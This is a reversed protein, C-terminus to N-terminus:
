ASRRHPLLSTTWTEGVTGACRTGSAGGRARSASWSRGCGSSLARASTVEGPSGCGTALCCPRRRAPPLLRLENIQVTHQADPGDYAVLLATVLAHLRDIPLVDERNAAEVVELLEELHFRIVDFLLEEKDRYYHYLAAKSVGCLWGRDREDVGSESVIGLSVSVVTRRSLFKPRAARHM